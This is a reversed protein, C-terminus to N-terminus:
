CDYDITPDDYPWGLPHKFEYSSHCKYNQRHEVEGCGKCKIRDYFNPNKCNPIDFIYGCHFCQLKGLLNSTM